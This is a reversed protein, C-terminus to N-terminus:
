LITRKYENDTKIRKDKRERKERKEREAPKPKFSFVGPMIAIM